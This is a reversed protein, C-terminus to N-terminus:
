NENPESNPSKPQIGYRRLYFAPLNPNKPEASSRKIFHQWFIITNESSNEFFIAATSGFTDGPTRSLLQTRNARIPYLHLINACGCNLLRAFYQLSFYEHLPNAGVIWFLLIKSFLFFQVWLLINGSRSVLNPVFIAEFTNFSLLLLQLVLHTRISGFHGVTSWHRRSHNTDEQCPRIGNRWHRRRSAECYYM